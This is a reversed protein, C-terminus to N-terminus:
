HDAAVTWLQAKPPRGQEIRDFVLHQNDLWRLDYTSGMGPGTLRRPQSEGEVGVIWIGATSFTPPSGRGNPRPASTFTAYAIAGGDPSPVALGAREHTRLVVRQQKGDPTSVILGETTFFVPTFWGHVVPEL